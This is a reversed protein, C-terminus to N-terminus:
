HVPKYHVSVGYTTVISGIRENVEKASLKFNLWCLCDGDEACFFVSERIVRVEEETTPFMSELNLTALNEQIGPILVLLGLELDYSESIALLDSVEFVDIYTILFKQKNQKIIESRGFETGVSRESPNITVITSPKGSYAFLLIDAIIKGWGNIDEVGSKEFVRIEISQSAIQDLEIRM